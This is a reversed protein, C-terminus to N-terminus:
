KQKLVIAPQATNRLGRGPGNNRLQCIM